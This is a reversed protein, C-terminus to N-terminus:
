STPQYSTDNKRVLSIVRDFIEPLNKRYIGFLNDFKELFLGRLEQTLQHLQQLRENDIKWKYTTIFLEGFSQEPQEEQAKKKCREIVSFVKDAHSTDRSFSLKNIWAIREEVTPVQEVPEPQQFEEERTVEKLLEQSSLSSNSLPESVATSAITESSIAAVAAASIALDTASIPSDTASIAVAAASTPSNTAPISESNWFEKIRRAGHLNVVSWSETKRSDSTSTDRRFEFLGAASLAQRALRFASSKLTTTLKIFRSGFPDCQWCENWFSQISKAQNLIWSMDEVPIICHPKNYKVAERKETNRSISVIKPRPFFDAKQASNEPM